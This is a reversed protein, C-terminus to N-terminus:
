PDDSLLLRCNEYHLVNFANERGLDVVFSDEGVNKAVKGCRGLTLRALPVMDIRKNGALMEGWTVVDVLYVRSSEDDPSLVVANRLSPVTDNEQSNRFIAKRRIHSLYLQGLISRLGSNALDNPAQWPQATAQGLHSVALFVPRRHHISFHFVKTALGILGVLHPM